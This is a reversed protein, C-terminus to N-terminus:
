LIHWGSSVIFGIGIYVLIAYLAIYLIRYLLRAGGHAVLRDTGRRAIYATGALWAYDMWIHAIFMVLVGQMSAMYSADAIMKAGVTLWWAIFFPNLASFAIGALFSGYLTASLGHITAWRPTRYASSDKDGGPGRIMTYLQVTAFAILAVGGVVGVVWRLGDMHEMSLMGAAIALVLPLEVVAHGSACLVGSIYGYRRAYHLNILFLPGPSLVGSSSVAIVMLVFTHDM